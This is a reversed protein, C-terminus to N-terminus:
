GEMVELHARDYARIAEERIWGSMQALIRYVELPITVNDAISPWSDPPNGVMARVLPLFWDEWAADNDWETQSECLEKRRRHWAQEAAREAERTRRALEEEDSIEPKFNSTSV